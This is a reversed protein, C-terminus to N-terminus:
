LIVGSKLLTEIEDKIPKSAVFGDLHISGVKVFKGSTLSSLLVSRNYPLGYEHAYHTFESTNSAFIPESKTRKLMASTGNTYWTSLKADYSVNGRALLSLNTNVAQGITTGASILGGAIAVPNFTAVGIGVSAISGLLGFTTKTANAIRANENERFNTTNVSLITGIQCDYTFDPAIDGGCHLYATGSGNVLDISYYLYYSSGKAGIASPLQAWGYFPVYIEYQTYPEVDLFSQPTILPLDNDMAHLIHKSMSGYANTYVRLSSGGITTIITDGIILLQSQETDTGPVRRAKAFDTLTSFPLEVAGIIFTALADNDSVAQQVVGFEYKTLLYTVVFRQTNINDTEIDPATLRLENFGEITETKFLLTPDVTASPYASPYRANLDNALKEAGTKDLYATLAILRETDTTTSRHINFPTTGSPASLTNIEPTKHYQLPRQHDELMPYLNEEYREVFATTGIIGYYYTQLVDLSLAVEVLKDNVYRIDTVFYYKYKRNQGPVANNGLRVYNPSNESLTYPDSLSSVDILVVPTREDYPMKFVGVVQLIPSFNLAKNMKRPDGAYRYLEIQIM